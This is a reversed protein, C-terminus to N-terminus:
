GLRIAAGTSSLSLLTAAVAPGGCTVYVCHAVISFSLRTFTSTPHQLLEPHLAMFIRVPSNKALWHWQWHCQTFAIFDPPFNFPFLFLTEFSHLPYLGNLEHFKDNWKAGGYLAYLAYDFMQNTRLYKSSHALNFVGTFAIPLGMRRTFPFKPNIVLRM